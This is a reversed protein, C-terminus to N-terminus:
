YRNSGGFGAQRVSSPIPDAEFIVRYINDDRQQLEDLVKEIKNLDKNLLEYQTLLRNNERKIAKTKPTEYTNIIVVVIILAIALSSSFYAFIKTIKEKFSHGVREYSLSDPNFRYKKKAM